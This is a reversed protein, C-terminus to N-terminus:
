RYHARKVFQGVKQADLYADTYALELENLAPMLAEPVFRGGFSGYYGRHDTLSM